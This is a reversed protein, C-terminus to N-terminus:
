PQYPVRWLADQSVFYAHTADLSLQDDLHTGEVEVAREAVAGGDLWVIERSTVYAARNDPSRVLAILRDLDDAARGHITTVLRPGAGPPVHFIEEHEDLKSRTFYLGDSAVTWHGHAEEELLTVPTGGRRDMSRCPDPAERRAECWYLTGGEILLKSVHGGTETLLVPTEGDHPLRYIGSRVTWGSTAWYIAEDDAVLAYAAQGPVYTELTSGTKSARGIGGAINNEAWYVHTQDVALEVSPNIRGLARVEGTEKDTAELEGTMWSYIADGIAFYYENTPLDRVMEADVAGSGCAAALCSGALVAARM